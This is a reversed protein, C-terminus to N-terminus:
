SLIGPEGPAPMQLYYRFGEDETPTVSSYIVAKESRLSLIAARLRAPAVHDVARERYITIKPLPYQNRDAIDAIILAIGLSRHKGRKCALLIKGEVYWEGQDPDKPKGALTSMVRKFSNSGMLNKAHRPCALSDAEGMDELMASEATGTSEEDSVGIHIPQLGQGSENEVSSWNLFELIQLEHRPKATGFQVNPTQEAPEEETVDSPPATTEKEEQETYVQVQNGRFSAGSISAYLATQLERIIPRAEVIWELLTKKLTIGNGALEKLCMPMTADATKLKPIEVWYPIFGKYGGHHSQKWTRCHLWGSRSKEVITSNIYGGGFPTNVFTLDLVKSDDEHITVSDIFLVNAVRIWM